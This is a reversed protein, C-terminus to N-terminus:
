SEQYAIDAEWSVPYHWKGCFPWPPSIIDILDTCNRCVPKHAKYHGGQDITTVMNLSTYDEIYHLIEDHYSTTVLVQPLVFSINFISFDFRSLLQM